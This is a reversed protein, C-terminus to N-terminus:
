ADLLATTLPVPKWRELAAALVLLDARDVVQTETIAKSRLVLVVVVLVETGDEAEVQVVLLVTRVAVAEV